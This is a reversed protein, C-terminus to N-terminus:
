KSTNKVDSITVPHDVNLVCRFGQGIGVNRTDPVEALRSYVDNGWASQAYSGGRSIKKTGTKPGTPDTKNALDAYGPAYWDNVWEAANDTM